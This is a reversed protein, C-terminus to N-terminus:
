TEAVESLKIVYEETNPVPIQFGDGNSNKFTLTGGAEVEFPEQFTDGILDSIDIIEEEALEFYGVYDNSEFFDTVASLLESLSSSETIKLTTEAWTRTIRVCLYGIKAYVCNETSDYGYAANTSTVAFDNNCSSAAAHYNDSSNSGNWYAYLGFTNETNWGTKKSPDQGYFKLKNFQFKEVKKHYKKGEFDVYNYANGTSWGYGPLQRVTGPVAFSAPDHYVLAPIEVNGRTIQPTIVTDVTCKVAMIYWYLPTDNDTIEFKDNCWTKKGTAKNKTVFTISIGSNGTNNIRYRGVPFDKEDVYIEDIESRTNTSGHVYIKGNGLNEFNVDGTKSVVKRADILNRGREVIENVGASLLEGLNYSYYDDTFVSEFEEVTSPEGGTGFMKTLDFIEVKRVKVNDGVQMTRPVANFYLYFYKYMIEISTVTVIRSIKTWANSINDLNGATFYNGLGLLFSVDTREICCEFSVLYKHGVVPIDFDTRYSVYDDVNTCTIETEGEGNKILQNWVITKGGISKVSALKAGTPVTKQYAPTSDEEFQYSVGQNLKWLADLKREAVALTTKDAKGERMAAVGAKNKEIQEASDKIKEAQEQAQQAAEGATIESAKAASASDGAATASKEAATASEAANSASTEAATAKQRATEASQAASTASEAAKGAATTATQAAATATSASEAASRVAQQAASGSKSAADAATKATEASRSASEASGSANAASRAANEALQAATTTSEAATTASKAAQDAATQATTASEGAHRESEAAATASTAAAKESTAAAKASEQSEVASKEARTASESASKASDAAVEASAKTSEMAKNVAEITKGFPDDKPDEPTELNKPEPRSQVYMTIKYETNGSKGDSIYLFAYISYDRSTGANELYSNPVAVETVGDRTLGVRRESEGGKEQLSFHIEVADPLELGQIRLIQGYDYQWLGLVKATTYGPQFTAAVINKM